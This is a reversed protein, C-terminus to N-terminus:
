TRRGKRGDDQELGLLVADFHRFAEEAELDCYYKVTTQRSRHGLLLQVREYDGPHVSLYLKAAVHRFSHPNVAFGLYRRMLKQIDTSMRSACKPGGDTAPFLFSGPINTILPRYKKLYLDLLQVTSRPLPIELAKDNKVMEPTYFLAVAGDKGPSRIVNKHLDTALLNSIRLPARQAIKIWLAAAVINATVRNPSKRKEADKVIRDALSLFARVNAIDRFPALSRRASEPLGEERPRVKNAMLRLKKIDSPPSRVWLEAIMVLDSAIGRIQSNRQQGARRIFFKLGSHVTTPTALAALSTIQDAKLINEIILVSAFQRVRYRILSATSARIPQSPKVDNDDGFLEEETLLNDLDLSSKKSRFALYADLDDWLSQPFAGSPLVYHDVFSPVPVPSRPASPDNAVLDNWIKRIDRDRTRTNKFTSNALAESYADFATPGIEDPAFGYETAFRFFSQLKRAVWKEPIRALLAKFKPELPTKSRKRHFHADAYSLAADLHSKCNQFRGKSLGVSAPTMKALAEAFIRPEAPTSEIQLNLARCLSRIGSCLDRRKKQPIDEDAAILSLLVNLTIDVRPARAFEPSRSVKVQEM